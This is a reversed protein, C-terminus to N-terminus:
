GAPVARGSLFDSYQGLGPLGAHRGPDCDLFRARGRDVQGQNFEISDIRRQCGSLDVRARQRDIQAKGALSAVAPIGERYIGEVRRRYERRVRLNIAELRSSTIFTMCPKTSVIWKNLVRGSM